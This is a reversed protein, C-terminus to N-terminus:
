DRPVRSGMPNRRGPRAREGVLPITRRLRRSGPEPRVALSALIREPTRLPIVHIPLREEVQLQELRDEVLDLVEEADDLDVIAKLHINEPEDHGRAVDFVTGPYRAIITQQLELLAAQIRPSLEPPKQPQRRNM